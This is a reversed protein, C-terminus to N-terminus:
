GHVGLGGGDFGALLSAIYMDVTGDFSHRGSLCDDVALKFASGPKGGEM